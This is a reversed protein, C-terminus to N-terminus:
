REILDILKEYRSLQVKLEEAERCKAIFMRSMNKYEKEYDIDSSDDIVTDFGVLDKKTTCKKHEVLNNINSDELTEKNEIKIAKKSSNEVEKTYNYEPTDLSKLNTTNNMLNLVLFNYAKLIVLYGSNRDLNYNVLKYTTTSNTYGLDKAFEDISKNASTLYTNFDFEKYWNYADKLDVNKLYQDEKPFRIHKMMSVKFVRFFKEKNDEVKNVEKKIVKNLGDTLFDYYRLLMDDSFQGIHGGEIRCIVSTNVNLAKALATQSPYGYNIRQQKLDTDKLWQKVNEITIVRETVNDDQLVKMFDNVKETPLEREGSMIEKVKDEPINTEKSIEYTSKKNKKNIKSWITNAM